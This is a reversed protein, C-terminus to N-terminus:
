DNRLTRIRRQRTDRRRAHRERMFEEMGLLRQIARRVKKIRRNASSNKVPFRITPVPKDLLTCLAEWGDGRAFDMVLLDGPRNAFYAKVNENHKLYRALYIDEHGAPAGYGYIWAHTALETSGFHSVVSKIWSDPDRVTLIFKSGPAREDLYRYLVPWPTDQFADYRTLHDEACERIKREIDPPEVGFGGQVAYGLQELARGLSSTGTKQFGIGFVKPPLTPRDMKALPEESLM